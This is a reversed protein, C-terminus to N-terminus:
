QMLFETFLIREIGGFGELQELESNVVLALEQGMKQRFGEEITEPETVFSLHELIAARVALEHKVVNDIVMQDYHTSVTLNMQMVKRSDAVNAVFVQAFQHYLTDLRNTDPIELLQPADPNDESSSSLAPGESGGEIANLRDIIEDNGSLAGTFYLIGLILGTVLFISGLGAAVIIIITRRGIGGASPTTNEEAM